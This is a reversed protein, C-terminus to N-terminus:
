GNILCSRRVMARRSQCSVMAFCKGDISVGSKMLGIAKHDKKLRDLLREDVDHWTLPVCTNDNTLVYAASISEGAVSRASLLLATALTELEHKSM